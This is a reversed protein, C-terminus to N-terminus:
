RHNTLGTRRHTEDEPAVLEVCDTVAFPTIGDLLYGQVTITMTETEGPEPPTLALADIM